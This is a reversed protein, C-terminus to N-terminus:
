KGSQTTSSKEDTAPASTSPQPEATITTKSKKKKNFIYDSSSKQAGESGAEHQTVTNTPSGQVPERPANIDAYAFNFNLGILIINAIYKNM